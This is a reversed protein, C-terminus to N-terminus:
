FPAKVQDTAVRSSCLGGMNQPMAPSRTSEFVSIKQNSGQSLWAAPNAVLTFTDVHRPLAVTAFVDAAVERFAEIPVAVPFPGFLM